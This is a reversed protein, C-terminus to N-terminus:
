AAIVPNRSTPKPTDDTTGTTYPKAPLDLFIDGLAASAATEVMLKRPKKIPGGTIPKIASNALKRKENKNIATSPKPVEMSALLTFHDDTNKLKFKKNHIDIIIVFM